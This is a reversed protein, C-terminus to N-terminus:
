NILQSIARNLNGINKRKQNNIQIRESMIKMGCHDFMTNMDELVRNGKSQSWTCLVVKKREFAYRWNKGPTGRSVWAIANALVPPLGGSYEPACFVFSQANYMQKRFKKIRRKAMLGPSKEKSPYYLPLDLKELEVITTQAGKKDAISKLENGLSVNKDMGAVLILVRPGAYLNSTILLLLLTLKLKM